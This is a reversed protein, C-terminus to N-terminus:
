KKKNKRPRHGVAPAGAVGGGSFENKEEEEESVEEPETILRKKELIIARILHRLSTYKMNIFITSLTDIGTFLM